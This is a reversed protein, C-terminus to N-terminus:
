VKSQSQTSHLDLTKVIAFDHEVGLRTSCFSFSFSFFFFTTAICRLLVADAALPPFTSTISNINITLYCRSCRLLQYELANNLRNLMSFFTPLPIRPLPSYVLFFFCAPSPHYPHQHVLRAKSQLYSLVLLEWVYMTLHEGFMIVM